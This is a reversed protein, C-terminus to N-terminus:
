RSRTRNVDSAHSYSHVTSLNLIGLTCLRSLFSISTDETTGPLVGYSHSPYSPSSSCFRSIDMSSGGGTHGRKHPSIQVGSTYAGSPILVVIRHDLLTGEEYRSSFSMSTIVFFVIVILVAFFLIYHLKQFMKLKYTQKRAALEAKTALACLHRLPNDSWLVGTALAMAPLKGQLAYMIWLLFTTLTFSLPMVFILLTTISVVEIQIEVVAIAYM